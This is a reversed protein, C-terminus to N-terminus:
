KRVLHELASLVQELRVPKELYADAKIWRRSSPSDLNFEFQVCSNAGTLMVIPFPKAAKKAHYCLAFGSDPFELGLNFVAGDFATEKLIKEAEEQTEATTVAYGSKELFAKANKLFDIDDDVVFIKKAQDAM